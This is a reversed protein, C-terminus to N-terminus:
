AGGSVDLLHGKSSVLRGGILFVIKIINRPNSYRVKLQQPASPQLCPARGTLCSRWFSIPFIQFRWGQLPPLDICRHWPLDIGIADPM